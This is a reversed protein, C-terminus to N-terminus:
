SRRSDCRHVWRAGQGQRALDLLAELEHALRSMPLLNLFGSGGKLTHFSRFVSNLTDGDAPNKELALVDIEVRSLHEQAESIFERLLEGNSVVDLLMEEDLPEAVDAAAPPSPLPVVAASSSEPAAPVAQGQEVAAIAERLWASWAGIQKISEADLAGANLAGDVWPRALGAGQRIPEALGGLDPHGEIESLLSNIPLLGSDKGPEAFVLEM